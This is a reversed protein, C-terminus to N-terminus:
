TVKFRYVERPTFDGFVASLSSIKSTTLFNVGIPIIRTPSYKPKTDKDRKVKYEDAMCLTKVMTITISEAYTNTSITFRNM